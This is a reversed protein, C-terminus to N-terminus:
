ELCVVLGYKMFRYLLLLMDIDKSDILTLSKLSYCKYRLLRERM